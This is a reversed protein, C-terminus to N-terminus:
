RERHRTGVGATIFLATCEGDVDATHWVGPANIAYEGAELRVRNEGAQTEQILVMSGRLCYVVEAGSPHMEWSTWSEHFTYEAVLRAELGDSEHRQVYDAFWEFGTITSEPVATAGLGLHIPHSSLKYSSQDM